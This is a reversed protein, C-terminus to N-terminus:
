QQGREDLTIYFDRGDGRIGAPAALYNFILPDRSFDLSELVPVDGLYSHFFEGSTDVREFSSISSKLIVEFNESLGSPAVVKLEEAGLKALLKEFLRESVLRDREVYDRKGGVNRFLSVFIENRSFPVAVLVPEEGQPSVFLSFLDLSSVMKVNKVGRAYLYSLVFSAGTKIATFSGPGAGLILSVDGEFTLSEEIGQFLKPFESGLSGRPYERCVQISEVGSYFGFLVRSTSSDWLFVNTDM